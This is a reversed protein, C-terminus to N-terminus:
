RLYNANAHFGNQAIGSPDPQRSPPRQRAPRHQLFAKRSQAVESRLRILFRHRSDRAHEDDVGIESGPHRVLGYALSNRRTGEVLQRLIEEIVQEVSSAPRDAFGVSKVVSAEARHGIGRDRRVSEFVLQRVEHSRPLIAKFVDQRTGRSGQSSEKSRAILPDAPEHAFSVIGKGTRLRGGDVESM